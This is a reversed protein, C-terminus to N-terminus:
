LGQLDALVGRVRDTGARAIMVRLEADTVPRLVSPALVVPLTAPTTNERDLVERVRAEARAVRAAAPRKAHGNPKAVKKKSRASYIYGESIDVKHKKKAAAVIDKAPTSDPFSLIFQTKNFAM